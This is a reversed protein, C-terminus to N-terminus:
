KFLGKFFDRLKIKLEQLALNKSVDFSVYSYKSVVIEKSLLIVKNYSITLFVKIQYVYEDNVKVSVEKVNM